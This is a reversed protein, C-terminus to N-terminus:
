VGLSPLSHAIQRITKQCDPFIETEPCLGEVEELTYWKGDTLTGGVVEALYIFNIHEHAPEEGKAPVQCLLCQYPREISVAETEEVWLNEQRLFTIELGTEERVERRAAEPPTENAELHGGPPLLRGYKPHTLLLFKEESLLYCTATFQRIM